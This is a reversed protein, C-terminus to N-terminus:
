LRTSFLELVAIDPALKDSLSHLGGLFIIGTQWPKLTADIRAGIYRDRRELLSRALTQQDPSAGERNSAAGILQRALQYEEVLLEASETGIITAGRLRMRQLLQHNRSGARALESVIRLEHGCVPLGDQYVRVVEYRLNLGGLTKEIGTWFSDVLNLKHQWWQEGLQDVLAHKFADGLTGM